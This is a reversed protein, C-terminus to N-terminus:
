ATSCPNQPFLYRERAEGTKRGAFEVTLQYTGAKSFFLEQSSSQFVDWLSFRLQNETIEERFPFSGEFGVRVMLEEATYDGLNVDVNIKGGDWIVSDVTVSPLEEQAQVPKLPAFALAASLAVIGALKLIRKKDRM